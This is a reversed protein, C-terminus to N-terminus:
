TYTRVGCGLGLRSRHDQAPQCEGCAPQQNPHWQTDNRHQGAIAGLTSNTATLRAVGASRYGCPTLPTAIAAPQGGDAVVGPQIGLIRVTQLPTQVVGGSGIPQLSQYDALQATSWTNTRRHYQASDGFNRRRHPPSPVCMGTSCSSYHSDLNLRGCVPARSRHLPQLKPGKANLAGELV